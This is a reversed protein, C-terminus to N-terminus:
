VEHLPAVATVKERPKSTESREKDDSLLHNFHCNSIEAALKFKLCVNSTWTPRRAAGSPGQFPSSLGCQVGSPHACCNTLTSNPTAKGASSWPQRQVSHCSLNLASCGCRLDFHFLVPIVLHDSKFLNCDNSFASFSISMLTQFKPIDHSPADPSLGTLLVSPYRWPRWGQFFGSCWKLCWKSVTLLDCRNPKTRNPLPPTCAHDPVQDIINKSAMKAFLFLIELSWEFKRDKTKNPRPSWKENGKTKHCRERAM